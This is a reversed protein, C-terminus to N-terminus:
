KVDSGCGHELSPPDPGAALEKACARCVPIGDIMWVTYVGCHICKEFLFEYEDHPM